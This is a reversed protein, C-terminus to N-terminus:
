GKGWQLMLPVFHLASAVVGSCLTECTSLARSFSLLLPLTCFLFYSVSTSPYRTRSRVLLQRPLAVCRFPDCRRTVSFCGCWSGCHHSTNTLRSRARMLSHPHSFFPIIWTPLRCLAWTCHMGSIRVVKANRPFICSALSRFHFLSHSFFCGVQDGWLLPTVPALLLLFRFYLVSWSPQAASCSAAHVLFLSHSLCEHPLALRYSMKMNNIIIIKIITIIM